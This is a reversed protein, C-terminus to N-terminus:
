KAFVEIEQIYEKPLGAESATIALRRAYQKNQGALKRVPLIYVVVKLTEKNFTTVTIEEPLYDAVSPEGYLRSLQEQSLSMIAGYARQEISKVLTAREGIRLGYGDVYGLVPKTPYFGKEKLLAEEMFLGYFFVSIM